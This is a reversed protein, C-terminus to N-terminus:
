GWLLGGSAAAPPLLSTFKGRARPGPWRADPQHAAGGPGLTNLTQPAEAAELFAATVGKAPSVTVIPSRHRASPASTPSIPRVQLTM